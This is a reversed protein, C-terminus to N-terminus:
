FTWHGAVVPGMNASSALALSGYDHVEFPRFQELTGYRTCHEKLSLTPMDMYKSKGIVVHGNRGYHRLGYMDAMKYALLRDYSSMKPSQICSYQGDLVSLCMDELKLLFAIDHPRTKAIQHVFMEAEIQDKPRKPKSGHSIRQAPVYGRHEDTEGWGSDSAGSIREAELQNMPFKPKTGHSIRGREPGRLAPTSSARHVYGTHEITDNWESESSSKLGPVLGSYNQSPQDFAPESDIWHSISTQDLDFGSDHSSCSGLQIKHEELLLMHAKGEKLLEQIYKNQSSVTKELDRVKLELLAMEDSEVVVERGELECSSRTGEGMLSICSNEANCLEVAPLGSESHIRSLQDELGLILADKDDVLARQTVLQYQLDNVLAKQTVLQRQLDNVLAKQTVLQSQLDRVEVKLSMTPDDSNLVTERVTRLQAELAEVQIDRFSLKTPWSEVQPANSDQLLKPWCRGFFELLLPWGYRSVYDKGMVKMSHDELLDCKDAYRLKSVCVLLKPLSKPDVLGAETHSDSLLITHLAQVLCTLKDFDVSHNSKLSNLSIIDCTRVVEFEGQSRDGVANPTIYGNESRDGVANPTIYANEVDNLQLVLTDFQSTGRSMQGCIMAQEGNIVDAITSGQSPLVEMGVGTTVIHDNNVSMNEHEIKLQGHLAEIKSDKSSLKMSLLESQGKLAEIIDKNSSLHIDRSRVQSELSTICTEMAEVEQELEGVQKEFNDNVLGLAREAELLETAVIKNQAKLEEVRRELDRKDRELHAMTRHSLEVCDDRDSLQTVLGEKQNVMEDFDAVLDDYDKYLRLVKEENEVCLKHRCRYKYCAVEAMKM